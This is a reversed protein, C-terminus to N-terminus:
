KMKYGLKQSKKKYIVLKLTNLDKRKFITLRCKIQLTQAVKYNISNKRATKSNKGKWILSFVVKIGNLLFEDFNIGM